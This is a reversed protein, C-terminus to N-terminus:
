GRIMRIDVERDVFKWEDTARLAAVLDEFAAADAEAYDFLTVFDFPENEDLDRCHHLRRAISPLYKLGIRLHHSSEEFIARREAQSLGWWKANKRIPILASHNAEPRGLPVQKAVLQAKEDRTVYRENSIVGRLAWSAGAPLESIAGQM